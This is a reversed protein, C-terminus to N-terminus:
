RSPSGSAARAVPAREGVAIAMSWPTVSGEQRVARVSYALQGKQLALQLDRDRLGEAKPNQGAAAQLEHCTDRVVRLSTAAGEGTLLRLQYERSEPVADWCM